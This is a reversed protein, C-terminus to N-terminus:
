YYQTYNLNSSPFNGENVDPLVLAAVICIIICIASSYVWFMNIIIYNLGLANIVSPFIKLTILTM